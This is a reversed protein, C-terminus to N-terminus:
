EKKEEVEAELNIIEKRITMSLFPGQFTGLFKINISFRLELKICKGILVWAQILTPLRYKRDIATKIKLM